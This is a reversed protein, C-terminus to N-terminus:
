FTRAIFVRRGTMRGRGPRSGRSLARSIYLAEKRTGCLCFVSPGSGSVIARGGSLSALRRIIVGVAKTKAVVTDELDNHLMSRLAGIDLATKLRAAIKADVSRRTLAFDRADFAGYIDKTALKFGAKVVVHWFRKKLKVAELREGRSRGIAFPEELMFFPVDSGIGAAIRMLEKRSAKLRFLRKMGLLVAAADSSGGGLGAAVPIRKKIVIRVGCRLGYRRMVAEAARYATNDRPNRTVPPDSVMEIGACPIKSIRVTDALSIREFLTHINHYSDKRKNLVRLFINVKAPATLTISTM